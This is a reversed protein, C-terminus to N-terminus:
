LWQKWNKCSEYQIELLPRSSIVQNCINFRVEVIHESLVSGHIHWTLGNVDIHL